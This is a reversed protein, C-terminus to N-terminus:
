DGSMFETSAARVRAPAAAAWITAPETEMTGADMSVVVADAPSLWAAYWVPMAEEVCYAADDIYVWGGAVSPPEDM